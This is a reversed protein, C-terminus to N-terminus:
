LKISAHIIEKIKTEVLEAIEKLAEAHSSEHMLTSPGIMGIKTIGKDSYVSIRCPLVMNKSIDESLVELALKPNCIEYIYCEEPLEFGKNHMTEKLNYMHLIGFGNNLIETELDSTAIDVNKQSEVIYRM